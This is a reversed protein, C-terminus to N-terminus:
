AAVARFGAHTGLARSGTADIVRGAQLGQEPVGLAVIREGEIAVDWRGVGQPTVVDGGRIVLDLM